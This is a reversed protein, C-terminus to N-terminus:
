KKDPAIKITTYRISNLSLMVPLFIIKNYLFLAKKWSIFKKWLLLKKIKTNIRM